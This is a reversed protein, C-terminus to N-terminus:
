TCYQVVFSADDAATPGPNPIHDNNTDIIISNGSGITCDVYEAAYGSGCFPGILFFSLIIFATMGRLMDSNTKM